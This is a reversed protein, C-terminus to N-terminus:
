RTLNWKEEWAEAHDPKPAWGTTVSEREQPTPDLEEDPKEESSM